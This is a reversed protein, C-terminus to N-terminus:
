LAKCYCYGGRLNGSAGNVHRHNRDLDCLPPYACHNTRHHYWCDGSCVYIGSDFWLPRTYDVTCFGTTTIASITEFGAVRLAKSSSPFLHSTVSLYVIPISILLAIFLVKVEGNRLISKFQGKVIFYGTLFSLNGLLMLIITIFEVMPSDFYGISQIHNAFGGPYSLYPM